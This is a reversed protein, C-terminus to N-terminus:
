IGIRNRGSKQKPRFNINSKSSLLALIILVEALTEDLRISLNCFYSCTLLDDRSKQLCDAAIECLQHHLFRTAGESILRLISPDTPSSMFSGIRSRRRHESTFTNGDSCETSQGIFVSGLSTNTSEDTTQIGGGGGSGSYGLTALPNPSLSTLAGGSSSGGVAECSGTPRSQYQASSRIVM